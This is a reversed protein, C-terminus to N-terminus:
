LFDGFPIIESITYKTTELDEGLEVNVSVKLFGVIEEILGTGEFSGWIPVLTTSGYSCCGGKGSGAAINVDLNVSMTGYNDESTVDMFSLSNKAAFGTLALFLNSDKDKIEKNYIDTIKKKLDVSDDQNYVTESALQANISFSVVLMLALILKM